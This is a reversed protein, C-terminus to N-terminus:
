QVPAAPPPLPRADTLVISTRGTKDDYVELSPVINCDFRRLLDPTPNFGGFHGFLLVARVQLRSDGAIDNRRLELFGANGPPLTVLTQELLQGQIDLFQLTVTCSSPGLLSGTGLNLVNVHATEASAIGIMPFALGPQYGQASSVIPFALLMALPIVAPHLYKM